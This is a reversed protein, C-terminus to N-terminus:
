KNTICNGEVKAGFCPSILEMPCQVPLRLFVSPTNKLVPVVGFYGVNDGPHHIVQDPKAVM